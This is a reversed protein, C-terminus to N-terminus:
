RKCSGLWGEQLQKELDKERCNLYYVYTVWRIGHLVFKDMCNM